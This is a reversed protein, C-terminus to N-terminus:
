GAEEETVGGVRAGPTWGMAVMEDLIGQLLQQATAEDRQEAAAVLAGFLEHTGNAVRQVWLDQLHGTPDIAGADNAPLHQRVARVRDFADRHFMSRILVLKTAAVHQMTGAKAASELDAFAAHMEVFDDDTARKVLLSVMGAFMIREVDIISDIVEPDPEETGPQTVLYPVLDLTATERYPLVHAGTGQRRTILGLLELEHFASRLTHRDVGFQDALERESPLRDGPTYAGGLIARRLERTGAQSLDDKALPEYRRAAPREIMGGRRPASGPIRRFPEVPITAATLGRRPRRRSVGRGQVSGRALHHPRPPDLIEAEPEGAEVHACLDDPDIIVGFPNTDFAGTAFWGNLAEVSPFAEVTLEIENGDPDAYYISTAVGHNM